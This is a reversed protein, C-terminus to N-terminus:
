YLFVYNDDNNNNNYDNNDNTNQSFLQEQNVLHNSSVQTLNFLGSEIVRNWNTAFFAELTLTNKTEAIM